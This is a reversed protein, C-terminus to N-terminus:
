LSDKGIINRLDEMMMTTRLDVGKKNLHNQTNFFLNRSMRYKEPSSLTQFHYRILEDNVLKIYDASEDFVTDLLPPFGIFLKGNKKEVEQKLVNLADLVEYNFQGYILHTSFEEDPMDWHVFVDGYQNFAKRDYIGVTDNQDSIDKIYYKAKWSLMQPVNRIQKSIIKRDLLRLFDPNADSITLLLEVQGYAVNDYYQNYEPVVIVIDGEKIYPKVNNLMFFLGLGAHVGMNIPNLHLSDKIEQSNLGFSLNSGGVFIVRPKETEELLKNKDLIAYFLSKKFYESPPVLCVAVVSICITFTAVVLFFPIRILFKKM